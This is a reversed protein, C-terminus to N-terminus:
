VPGAEALCAHVARGLRATTWAGGLPPLHLFAVRPVAEGLAAWYTTDCIYGGADCSLRVPIGARRMSDIARQWTWRGVRREVSWPALAGPRAAVELRAVPDPALGTLLLVAPAERCVAERVMMAAGEYDVPLCLSRIDVARGSLHRVTEWSSNVTWNGFPEFGTVLIAAM